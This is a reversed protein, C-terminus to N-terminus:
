EACNEYRDKENRTVEKVLIWTETRRYHVSYGYCHLIENCARIGLTRGWHQRQLRRSGQKALNKLVLRFDDWESRNMTTKSEELFTVLKKDALEQSPIELPELTDYDLGLWDLQTKIFADNGEEKFRQIITNINSILNTLERKALTNLHLASNEWYCVGGKVLDVDNTVMYRLIEKENGREILKVFEMKRKYRFQLLANFEKGSKELLYLTLDDEENLVRKRGVMQIFETKNPATVVMHKLNSDRLTVGNDLLRTTILVTSSFQESQIIEEYVVDDTNDASLYSVKIGQRRLERYLKEGEMKNDIFLLWKEKPESLSNQIVLDKIDEMKPVAKVHIYKYDTPMTYDHWLKKRDIGWANQFSLSRLKLIQHYQNERIVEREEWNELEQEAIFMKIEDVTASIYIRVSNDFYIKTAYTIKDTWSNFMSDSLMYHAEDFVVYYFDKLNVKGIAVHHNVVLTEIYQYSVTTIGDFINVEENLLEMHEVGQRQILLNQMQRKLARRNSIYLIRRGSDRALGLLSNLVFFTKGTGPPSHLFIIDGRNYSVYDDGIIDTVFQRKM